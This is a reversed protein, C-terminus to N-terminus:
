GDDESEPSGDEAAKEAAAGKTEIVNGERDYVKLGVNIGSEDMGVQGGVTLSVEPIMPVGPDERMERSTRLMKEHDALALNSLASKLDGIIEGQADYDEEPWGRALVDAVGDIGDADGLGANAITESGHMALEMVMLGYTYKPEVLADDIIQKFLPGLESGHVTKLENSVAKRYDQVILNNMARQSASFVGADELDTAIDGPETLPKIQRTLRSLNEINGLDMEEHMGFEFGLYLDLNQLLREEQRVHRDHVVPMVRDRANEAITPNNALALLPVPRTLKIIRDDEGLVVLSRYPINPAAVRRRPQQQQGGQQAGPQAQRQSRVTMGRQQPQEPAVYAEEEKPQEAPPPAVQAVAPSCATIAGACALLFRRRIDHPM